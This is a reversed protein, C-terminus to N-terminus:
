KEEDLWFGGGERPTLAFGEALIGATDASVLVRGMDAEMALTRAERVCAGSVSYELPDDESGVFGTVVSGSSIGVSAARAVPDRSASLERIMALAARAARTGHADSPAPVGFLGLVVCGAGREVYGGAERVARAAEAVVANLGEVVAEPPLTELLDSLAAVDCALVTASARRGKVWPSQPSGLIKELVDVGVQRGFSDRSLARTRVAESMLDLSRALDSVEDVGLYPIRRRLDGRAAANAAEALLNLRRVHLRALLLAGLLGALWLAAFVGALVLKMRKGASLVAETDVGLRVEGAWKGDSYASRALASVRRGSPLWELSLHTRGDDGALAGGGASLEVAFEGPPPAQALVRGSADLVTAYALGGSAVAAGALAALADRDGAPILDGAREALLVTAAKGADLSRAARGRADRDVLAAASLWALLVLATVGATFQFWLPLRVPSQAHIERRLRVLEGLDQDLAVAPIRYHDRIADLVETESAFGKEVVLRGLPESRHLRFYRDTQLDLAERLQRRTVVGRAVLVEGLRMRMDQAQWFSRFLRRAARAMPFVLPAM